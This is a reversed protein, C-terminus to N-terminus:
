GNDVFSFKVLNNSESHSLAIHWLVQSEKRFAHDCSNRMMEFATSYISPSRGKKGWVTEMSKVVENALERQSTTNYGTHLITNKTSKNGDDVKGIVFKFFGSKELIARASPNRPKTGIFAVKKGLEDLVSLL